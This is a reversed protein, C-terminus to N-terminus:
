YVALVIESVRFGGAAEEICGRALLGGLANPFDECRVSGVSQKCGSCFAETLTDRPLVADEEQLLWFLFGEAPPVPDVVGKISALFGTVACGLIVPNSSGLIGTVFSAAAGIAALGNLRAVRPPRNGDVKVYMLEHETLEHVPRAGAAVKMAAEKLKEESPALEGAEEIAARLASACSQRVEENFGM